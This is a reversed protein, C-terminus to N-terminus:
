KVLSMMRTETRGGARLQYLYVGSSVRRGRGDFGDWTVEHHGADRTDAVLTRVARGAEDYITLAVPGREALDFAIITTPNFPNPRNQRLAMHTPPLQTAAIGIWLAQEAAFPSGALGADIAQVGWYLTQGGLASVDLSWSVRQQANGAAPLHRRGTTPDAMAALVENGGPTTGVRLNYTLMAGPSETDTAASWSFNAVGAALTASGAPATPAMNTVSRHNRYVRAVPSGATNLGALVVDLDGDADFDGFQGAASTVGEFGADIDTFASGDNRYIRAVRGNTNTRGALFIDLDGDNDFDGWDAASDFVGELGAGIDTFAGGDNRYVRSIRDTTTAGTFLLDLDGDGDYDGWAFESGLAGPLGAGTDVFTGSDNRYLYTHQVGAADRGALLIDLDGDIDYDCWAATAEYSPALGAGVATFAGADNRYIEALPDLNEKRGALVLDLDGDNDYDGWAVSAASVGELGNSVDIFAGGDNRYIRYIRANSANLGAYVIDLDGDNDYDGWAAASVYVGTLGAGIDTFVGDDNRYIRATRANAATLGTM